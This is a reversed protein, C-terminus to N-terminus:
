IVGAGGGGGGVGFKKIAFNKVFACNNFLYAGMNIVYRATTALHDVESIIARLHLYPHKPELNLIGSPFVIDM